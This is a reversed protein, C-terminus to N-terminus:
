LLNGSLGKLQYKQNKGRKVATTRHYPRLAKIWLNGIIDIFRSISM